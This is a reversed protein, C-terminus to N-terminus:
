SMAGALRRSIALTHTFRSDRCLVAAELLISTSGSRTTRSRLVRALSVCDPHSRDVAKSRGLSLVIVLTSASISIFYLRYRAASVPVFGPRLVGSTARFPRLVRAANLLPGASWQGPSQLRTSSRFRAGHQLFGFRCPELFGRRLLTRM